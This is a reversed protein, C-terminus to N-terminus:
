DVLDSIDVEVADSWVRELNYFDRTEPKFIHVIADNFGILIWDGTRYGEKNIHFIGDKGLEQEVHDCLAQTQRENKGTALVFYDTLTTLGEVNLVTIDEASKSNLVEVIKNVTKNECAM